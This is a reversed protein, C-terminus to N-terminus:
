VIEVMRDALGLAVVERYQVEWVREEANWRGGVAKVLHRIEKERFDVRIKIFANPAIRLTNKRWEKEEVVLEVTIRRRKLGADYKYRVCELAGGFQRCYKATGPSGSVLKKRTIFVL